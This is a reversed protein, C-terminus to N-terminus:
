EGSCTVRGEDGHQGAEDRGGGPERQPLLEPSAVTMIRSCNQRPLASSQRCDLTFRRDTAVAHHKQTQLEALIKIPGSRHNDSLM